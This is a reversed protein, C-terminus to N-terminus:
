EKNEVVIGVVGFKAQANKDYFEEMINLANDVTELGTKKVDIITFLSEFNEARVLGKVMVTNTMDGNQFIIEDGPRILQRKQDYLRLEITKYGSKIYDYYPQKLTM